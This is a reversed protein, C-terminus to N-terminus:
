ISPPLGEKVDISTEIFTIAVRLFDEGTGSRITWAAGVEPDIGHDAANRINGLYRGVALVKKPLKKASEFAQVKAGLGHATVVNVGMDNALHSLHSEVANGATVVAGRSDGQSVKLYSEALPELVAVRDVYNRARDSLWDRIRLEAEALEAVVGGLQSSLEAEFDFRIEHHGGATSRLSQCYTGLSVLTQKVSERHESLELIACTQQAATNVDTVSSLCERFTRFPLYDEVAVRLVAARQALVPTALLRSLPSATTYTTGDSRVLGLDEALELARTANATPLDLYNAVIQTTAAGRGAVVAQVAGVVNDATTDPLRTM